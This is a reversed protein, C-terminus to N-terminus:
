FRWAFLYQSYVLLCRNILSHDAPKKQPRHIPEHFITYDKTSTHYICGITHCLKTFWKYHSLIHSPIQPRIM